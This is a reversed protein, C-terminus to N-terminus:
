KGLPREKPMYKEPGGTDQPGIQVAGATVVELQPADFTASDPLRQDAAVPPQVSFRACGNLYEHKAVAIGQFGSVKDKVEDGLNVM